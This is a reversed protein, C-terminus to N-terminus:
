WLVKLLQTYKRVVVKAKDGQRIEVNEVGIADMDNHGYCGEVVKM